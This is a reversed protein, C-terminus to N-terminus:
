TGTGLLNQLASELDKYDFEFGAQQLRAPVGRQGTLILESNIGVVFGMARLVWGPVPPSWPRHLVRRLTRMLEAHTVSHPAVANFTGDLKANELVELFIRNLDQAHIWSVAQRGNGAAGGLFCRTLRALVPLAGGEKGLVVGLRLMVKRTGSCSVGNFGAECTKTIDALLGTGAPAAEHCPRDTDGYFGVASCHVFVGPKHRCRGVAEGLVQVAELRSVLLERRNRATLRCNVNKGSLNVLADAGELAKTWPGLSRGDWAVVRVGPQPAVRISRTLVTVRDGRALLRQTLASGLFGSGGALVIHHGSM